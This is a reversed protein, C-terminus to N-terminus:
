IALMRAKIVLVIIQIIRYNSVRIDAIREEVLM